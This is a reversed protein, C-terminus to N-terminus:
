LVSPSYRKQRVPKPLPPALGPLLLLGTLLLLGALLLLGEDVLRMPEVLGAM